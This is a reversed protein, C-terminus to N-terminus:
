SIVKQVVGSARSIQYRPYEATEEDDQDLSTDVKVSLQLSTVPGLKHASVVLLLQGDDDGIDQLALVLRGGMFERRVSYAGDMDEVEVDLFVATRKLAWMGLRNAKM